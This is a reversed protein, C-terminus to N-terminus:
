AAYLAIITPVIAAALTDGSDTANNVCFIEIESTEQRGIGQGTKDEWYGNYKFAFGDYNSTALAYYPNSFPLFVRNNFGFYGMSIFEEKQVQYGLGRGEFYVGSTVASSANLYPKAVVTNTTIVSGLDFLNGSAYVFIQKNPTLQTVPIGNFSNGFAVFRVGITAGPTLPGGVAVTSASAGMAMSGNVYPSDLTITAPSSAASCGSLVKYIPAGLDTASGLRIYSGDAVTITSSGTTLIVATSGNTVTATVDASNTGNRLSTSATGSLLSAWVFTEEPLAGTAINNLTNANIGKMMDYGINLPTASGITPYSKNWSTYPFPPIGKSMNNINIGYTGPTAGVISNADGSVGSFGITYINPIAASYTTATAPVSGAIVSRPQLTVSRFNTTTGSAIGQAIMLPLLKVASTVLGTGTGSGPTTGNTLLTFAGTSSISYVGIEGAALLNPNAATTYASANGIFVTKSM